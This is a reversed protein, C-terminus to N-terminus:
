RKYHWKNKTRENLNTRLLGKKGITKKTKIM